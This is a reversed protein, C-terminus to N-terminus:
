PRENKTCFRYGIGAILVGHVGAGLEAFGFLRRGVSVGIYTGQVAARMRCGSREDDRVAAVGLGLASYLRVSRRDIWTGRIMPMVTLHDVAYRGIPAGNLNSYDRRYDRAYSLTASLDFRRSFRYGYSLTYAGTTRVAGRYQKTSAFDPATWCEDTGFDIHLPYAGASFRVEHRSRRWDAPERAPAAAAVVTLLLTLLLRKMKGSLNM